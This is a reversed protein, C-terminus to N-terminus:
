NTYSGRTRNRRPLRSTNLRLWIQENWSRCCWKKYYRYCLFVCLSLSLASIATWFLDSQSLDYVGNGGQARFRHFLRQAWNVAEALINWIPRVKHKRIQEQNVVATCGTIFDSVANLYIMTFHQTMSWNLCLSIYLRDSYVFFWDSIRM